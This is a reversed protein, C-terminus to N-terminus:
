GLDGEQGPSRPVMEVQTHCLGKWHPRSWVLGMMEKGMSVREKEVPRWCIAM